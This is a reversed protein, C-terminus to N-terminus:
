RAGRNRLRVLGFPHSAGDSRCRTSVVRDHTARSVRHAGTVATWTSFTEKSVWARDAPRGSSPTSYWCPVRAPYSTRSYRSALHPRAHAYQPALPTGSLRSWMWGRLRPPESRILLRVRAQMRSCGPWSRWGPALLEELVLGGEQRLDELLRLSRQAVGGGDVGGAPRQPPGQLRGAQGNVGGGAAARLPVAGAGAGGLRVRQVRQVDAVQLGHGGPRGRDQHDLRGPAAGVGAGGGVAVPEGAQDPWPDFAGRSGFRRGPGRSRGPLCSPRPEGRALGTREEPENSMVVRCPRTAPIM